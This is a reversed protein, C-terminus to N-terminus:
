AVEAARNLLRERLAELAAGAEVVEFRREGVQTSDSEGYLEVYEAHNAFMRRNGHDVYSETALGNTLIVEPREFELHFYEVVDFNTERRITTGNVLNQAAVLVHDVLVAHEPSVYLDRSPQNKGISGATLLVPAIKDSAEVFSRSYGRQGIWKIPKATGDVAVVKDGISLSEVAVQGAPTLVQTGRMLCAVAVHSTVTAIDSNLVTLLGGNPGTIKVNAGDQVISLQSTSSLGYATFDIVDGAGLDTLTDSGFNGQFVFRDAGAGGTLIDNGAGGILVDDGAGGDLTDNGNGGDLFDKGAGGNLTDKGDGGFLTDKGAGGNLTDNGDLGFLIDDGGSGNIVDAGATGSLVDAGNTGNIAM